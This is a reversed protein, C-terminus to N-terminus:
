LHTKIRLMLVLKELFNNIRYLGILSSHFKKNPGFFFLHFHDLLSFADKMIKMFSRRTLVATTAAGADKRKFIGLLYFKELNIGRCLFTSLTVIIM